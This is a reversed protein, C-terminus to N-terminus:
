LSYTMGINIYQASQTEKTGDEEYFDGTLLFAGEIYFTSTRTLAYSLNLDAEWGLEDGRGSQVELVKAYAGMLKMLIPGFEAEVSLGAAIYGSTNSYKGADVVDSYTTFSGADEIIYLRWNNIGSDTGDITASLFSENTSNTSNDDGSVMTFFGTGKINNMKIYPAFDFAFASYQIDNVKDKGDIYAGALDLGFGEIALKFSLGYIFGTSDRFQGFEPEESCQYAFFVPRLSSQDYKLTLDAIYIQSDDKSKNRDGESPKVYYLGFNLDENSYFINALPADDEWVLPFDFNAIGGTLTLGEVGDVKTKLYAQTVELGERDEGPGTGEENTDDAATSKGFVADYEVKLMAEINGDTFNLFPKIRAATYDGNTDATEPKYVGKYVTSYIIGNVGVKLPIDNKAEQASAASILGLLFVIIATKKM